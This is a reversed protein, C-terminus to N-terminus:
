NLIQIEFVILRMFHLLGSDRTEDENRSRIFKMELFLDVILLNNFNFLESLILIGCDLMCSFDMKFYFVLVYHILNGQQDTPDVFLFHRLSLVNKM